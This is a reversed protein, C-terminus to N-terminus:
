VSGKLIIPVRLSFVSATFRSIRRTEFLCHIVFILFLFYSFFLTWIMWIICYFLWFLIFYIESLISFAKLYYLFTKFLHLFFYWKQEWHRFVSRNGTKKKTTYIHSLITCKSPRSHIWSNTSSHLSLRDTEHKELRYKCLERLSEEVTDGYDSLFSM